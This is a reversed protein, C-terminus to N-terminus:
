NGLERGIQRILDQLEGPIHNASPACSDVAHIDIRRTIRRADKSFTIRYEAFQKGEAFEKGEISGNFSACFRELAWTLKHQAVNLAADTWANFDLWQFIAFSLM